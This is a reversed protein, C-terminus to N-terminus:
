VNRIRKMLVEKEQKAQQAKESAWICEEPYEARAAEFSIDTWRTIRAEVQELAKIRRDNLTKM